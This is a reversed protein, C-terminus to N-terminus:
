KAIESENQEKVKGDRHYPFYLIYEIHLRKEKYKLFVM